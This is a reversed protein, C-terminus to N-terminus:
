SFNWENKIFKVKILAFINNKVLPDIPHFFISDVDYNKLFFDLTETPSILNYANKVQKKKM